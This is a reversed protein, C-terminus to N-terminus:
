GPTLELNWFHYDQMTITLIYISIYKKIEGVSGMEGDRWRGMEWVGLVGPAEKVM